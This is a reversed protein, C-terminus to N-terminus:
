EGTSIDVNIPPTVADGARRRQLRELQNLARYLQGEIATEYRLIKATADKSPLARSTVEADREREEKAEM